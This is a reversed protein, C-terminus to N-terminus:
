AGATERVQALLNQFVGPIEAAKAAAEINTRVVGIVTEFKTDMSTGIVQPSLVPLLVECWAVANQLRQTAFDGKEMMKTMMMLLLLPVAGALEELVSREPKGLRELVFSIFDIIDSNEQLQVAEKVAQTKDGIRLAALVKNLPRASVIDVMRGERKLLPVPDWNVGKAQPQGRRNYAVEFEIVQGPRVEGVSPLQSRDLYVDCSHKDQIDDSAIFGYGQSASFSKLTGIRRNSVQPEEKPAAPTPQTAQSATPTQLWNVDSAQPQGKNNASVAFEVYQGVRWPVPVQNKHIYVDAKYISKTGECEIFGYGTRANFTKLQGIYYPAWWGNEANWYGDRLGDFRTTDKAVAAASEPTFEPADPSLEASSYGAAM